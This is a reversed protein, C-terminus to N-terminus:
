RIFTKFETQQRNRLFFYTLHLPTGITKGSERNLGLISGYFDKKEFLFLESLVSRSKRNFM